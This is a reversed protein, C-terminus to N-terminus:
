HFTKNLLWALRADAQALRTRIVARARESYSANIEGSAPLQYVQARAIALSELAWHEPTGQQWQQRDEDTVLLTSEHRLKQRLAM